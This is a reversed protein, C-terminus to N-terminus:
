SSPITPSACPLVRRPFRTVSVAPPLARSLCLVMLPACGTVPYFGHCASAVGSPARGRPRPGDSQCPLKPQRLSPPLFRRPPGPQRSASRDNPASVFGQLHLGPRPKPMFCPRSSCRPPFRRSPSFGQPRFTTPGPIAQSLHVRQLRTAILSLFGLFSGVAHTPTRKPPRKVLYAPLIQSLESTARIGHPSSGALKPLGPFPARRFAM